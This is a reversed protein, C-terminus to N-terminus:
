SLKFFSLLYNFINLLICISKINRKKLLFTLIHTIIDNCFYNSLIDTIFYKYFSELYNIHDNLESKTVTVTKLLTDEYTIGGSCFNGFINFELEAM